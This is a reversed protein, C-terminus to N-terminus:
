TRYVRFDVPVTGAAASASGDVHRASVTMSNASIASCSISYNFNRSTLQVNIAGTGQLPPTFTVTGTGNQGAGPVVCGVQGVRVSAGLYNATLADVLNRISLAIDALPDSDLPYPLGGPTSAPM